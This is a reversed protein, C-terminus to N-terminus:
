QKGKVVPMYYDVIKNGNEDPNTFRPCNYLESTWDKSVDYMYGANKVANSVLIHEAMYIDQENGQVWGIGVACAEIDHKVFGEPVKTDPKMLMGCVYLFEHESLMKMFGVYAPDYINERLIKELTAFVGGSMCQEWFAPIPNNTGLASMKVRIENGIVRLKPLERVEFKVLKAEM